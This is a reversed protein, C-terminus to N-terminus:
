NTFAVKFGKEGLKSGFFINYGGGFSSTPSSEENLSSLMSLGGIDSSLDNIYALGLFIAFFFFFFLYFL